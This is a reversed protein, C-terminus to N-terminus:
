IRHIGVQEGSAGQGVGEGCVGVRAEHGVSRRGSSRGRGGLLAVGTEPLAAVARCGVGLQEVDVEAVVVDAALGGVVEAEGALPLAATRGTGLTVVNGGMEADVSREFWVDAFDAALRELARLVELLVLLDVGLLVMDGVAVGLGDGDMVFAIDLPDSCLCRVSRGDRGWAAHVEVSEM